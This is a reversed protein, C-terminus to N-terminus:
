KQCASLHFIYIKINKSHVVVLNETCYIVKKEIILCIVAFLIFLVVFSETLLVM